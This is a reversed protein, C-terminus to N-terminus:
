QNVQKKWAEKLMQKIIKQVYSRRCGVKESIAKKSMGKGWYKLIRTKKKM